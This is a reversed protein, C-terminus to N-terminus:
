TFVECYDIVDPVNLLYITLKSKFHLQNGVVLGWVVTYQYYNSVKLSFGTAYM